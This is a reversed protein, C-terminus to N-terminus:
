VQAVTLASTNDRACVPPMGSDTRGVLLAVNYRNAAPELAAVNQWKEFALPRAENADFRRKM